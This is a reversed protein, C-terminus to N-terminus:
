KASAEWAGQDVPSGDAVNRTHYKGSIKGSSREGDITSELRAGM